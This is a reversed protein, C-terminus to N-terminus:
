TLNIYLIEQELDGNKDYWTWLDTKKGVHTFSFNYTYYGIFATAGKIFYGLNIGSFSVITKRKM